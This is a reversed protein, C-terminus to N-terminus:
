VLGTDDDGYEASHTTLTHLSMAISDMTDIIKIKSSKMNEVMVGTTNNIEERLEDNVDEEDEAELCMAKNLPFWAIDNNDVSRRVFQELGDDDDKDQEWLYIIFSVYAWMNHDNKVHNRFGVSSDAARDFTQKDINCILCIETTDALRENKKSRLDSFTDIIIGFIVNLMIIMIVFFFLVDVVYRTNLTHDMQENIGAGYRLGYSLMTQMCHLLTDCDNKPGGDIMEDRFNYFIFFSFIYGLFMGLILTAMLQKRPFVVANLVDRTTSNKVVIDLLLFTLFTDSYSIALLCFVLYGFYYLTLGDLATLVASYFSSHGKDLNIQYKVPGRVVMFLVLTFSGFILQVMNLVSVVRKIDSPLEPEGDEASYYMLLLINILLALYFQIWTATNQNSRSFLGSINWEKLVQQHKIEKYLDHTRIVLDQLKNEPSSRDICEVVNDKSPKALDKMIEPVHFFRRQLEGRWYIEIYAVEVGTSGDIGTLQKRLSEKYDCFMQLLVLAETRLAVANEDDNSEDAQFLMQVIDLHLVSLVREYVTKKSAQGELLGQLIDICTKKLEFEEGEDCDSGPEISARLLRNITEILETNVVFYEQNMDCPGQIVELVTNAVAIGAQTSTRCPLRSLATMYNVFYDLLNVSQHNLPQERVIDQNPQYHGESMLQLFRIIIIEEPLDPDEGDELTVIENWEHWDILKQLSIQMQKFFMYSNTTRLHTNMTVQVDLSGGEKFLMAVCLKVCELQLADDIGVSILDLCLETAGFDNLAKVVDACAEDQEEGGDDDREYITMGWKNEIMTRFSRIIWTTTQSCRTNLHRMTEEEVLSDRVHNVLKIILAEYRLDSEVDENLFPLKEIISIFDQSQEASFTQIEESEMLATKFLEYKQCLRNEASTKAPSLLDTVMDEDGPGTVPDNGSRSTGDIDSEKQNSFPVDQQVNISNQREVIASKGVSKSMGDICDVVYTSHEKSFYNCKLSDIEIVLELLEHILEHVEDITLQVRDDVDVIDEGKIKMPDYLFQFFAGVIMSCVVFYEMRQRPVDCAEISNHKNILKIDEIGNKFVGVCSQLLKWCRASQALGPIAIEVEVCANYFFLGLRIKAILISRPDLLADLIDIYHYVSQVKAEVTTINIRGVTCGSLVRLFELHYALEEPLETIQVDENGEFPSMLRLKEQYEPSSVPCFFSVMKSLRAPSILQKVIEYQNELVNKEGCHTISAALALYQPRHGQTCVCDSFHSVLSIPSLRMLSENNVFIAQIVRHSNLGMDITDLFYNFEEFLLEQNIKNDYSFWYLVNNCLKILTRNNESAVPKLEDNCSHLLNMVKLAIDFFGLNRYLNQIEDDPCSTQDFELVSRHITCLDVLDKMIEQTEKNTKHDSETKLHGWLENTEINRELRTLMLDVRKYQQVRHTSILLQVKQMNNLLIQRSSYHSMLVDLTIQVLDTHVYMLNDIFIHDFDHLDLTLEKSKELVELFIEEPPRDDTGVEWEYFGRLLLSLNRDEIIRQTYALVNVAEVMTNLEYLPTKGYRAPREWKFEEDDDKVFHAVLRAARAIRVLRVLRAARLAKSFRGFGGGTDEPLGLLALDILVVILDIWNLVTGFFKTYSLHVMVICYYRLTLESFFIGIVVYDFFSYWPSKDNHVTQYITVSIAVVVLTIIFILVGLSELFDLTTKQWPEADPDVMLTGEDLEHPMTEQVSSEPLIPASGFSKQSKVTMSGGVSVSSDMRNITKPGGNGKFLMAFTNESAPVFATQRRDLALILPSIVDALKEPSGYFNYLALKHMMQMISLSFPEWPRGQMQAIHESIMQQLLAFRFRHSEDTSPLRPVTNKKIENFTRTLCPVSSVVQPDRDVYLHLILKVVAAKLDDRVNLKLITVLVEFPFVEEVRKMAIYNRGLCMEAALSLESIFYDAVAAMNERTSRSQQVEHFMDVAFLDQVGVSLKGFLGLPSFDISNTTWSLSISPLGKTILDQGLVPSHVAFTEPIYLRSNGSDFSAPVRRMQDVHVSILIDNHDKFFVESVTIQNGVVGRENCTCCAALLHLYMNNMKSSRLLSTFTNIERPGIKLEQLEMNTGLMETICKASLKQANVHKLLVHMYDAVFMQNRPNNDMAKLVLSLCSTLVGKGMDFTLKEEESAFKVGRASVGKGATDFKESIPILKEIIGLLIALSGQDCLINQRQSKLKLNPTLGTIDITDISYGSCFNGVKQLVTQFHSFENRDSGPWITAASFDQTPVVTRDLMTYLYNRTSIGVFADLVQTGKSKAAHRDQFQKEVYRHIQLNMASNKDKTGICTHVSPADAHSDGRTVSLGNATLQMAKDNTLYVTSGHVDQLSFLTGPASFSPTTVLVGPVKFEKAHSGTDMCLYKGSNLNRFLVHDTKWNVRGGQSIRKCELVWINNTDFDGSSMPELTVHDNTTLVSHESVTLNSNKEPDHIYILQSGLLHNADHSEKIPQYVSMKWATHELSCNVEHHYGKPPEKDSCHLYENPRDALKLLIDANSLITDGARDIKLKPQLQLWSMTNGESSLGLRINEREDRALQEPFITLFKGSRVHLLQLCDRESDSSQTPMFLQQLYRYRKVLLLLM